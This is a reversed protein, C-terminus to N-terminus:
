DEQGLRLQEMLHALLNEGERVTMEVADTAETPLPEGHYWVPEGTRQYIKAVIGIRVGIEARPPVDAPDDQARLAVDIHRGRGLSVTLTEAAALAFRRPDSLVEMRLPTAPGGPRSRTGPAPPTGASGATSAPAAAALPVADLDWRAWVSGITSATWLGTPWSAAPWDRIPLQLMFEVAADLVPPGEHPEWGVLAARGHLLELDPWRLGATEAEGLGALTRAAADMMTLLPDQQDPAPGPRGTTLARVAYEARLYRARDTPRFGTGLPPMCIVAAALNVHDEAWPAFVQTEYRAAVRVVQARTGRGPVTHRLVYHGPPLDASLGACGHLADARGHEDLTLLLNGALGLISVGPATFRPSGPSRVFLLLRGVDDGPRTLTHLSRAAVEGALSAQRESATRIGTIPVVSDATLERREHTVNQGDGVAVLGIDTTGPVWVDVRYIGPPLEAELAGPAARVVRLAHDRVVIESAPEPGHVSLVGSM